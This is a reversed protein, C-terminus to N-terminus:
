DEELSADSDDSGESDDGSDSEIVQAGKSRREAKTEQEDDSSSQDESGSAAHVAEAPEAEAVSGGDSDGGSDESLVVRPRKTPREPKKQAEAESDQEESDSVVRARKTPRPRTTPEADSEDEADSSVIRRKPRNAMRPRDDESSSSESIRGNDGASGELTASSGAGAEPSSFAAVPYEDHSPLGSVDAGNDNTDSDSSSISVHDAVVGGEESEDKSHDLVVLDDDDGSPEADEDIDEDDIGESEYENTESGSHDSGGWNWDLEGGTRRWEMLRNFMEVGSEFEFQLLPYIPIGHEETPGADHHANRNDAPGNDDSDGSDSDDGPESGNDSDSEDDSNSENDPHSVPHADSPSRSDRAQLPHTRPAIRALPETDGTPDPWCYIFDLDEGLGPEQEWTQLHYSSLKGKELWPLETPDSEAADAQLYVAKLNPYLSLWNRILAEDPYYEFWTAASIAIHRVTELSVMPLETSEYQDSLCVIDKEKNFRVVCGSPGIPFTDPLTRLALARSERHVALVARAPATQQELFPSEETYTTRAFPGRVLVQYLRAKAVLDPCFMGWIQHRLEPPLEMFQPFTTPGAYWPSDKPIPSSLESHDGSSSEDGSNDSDAGSEVAEMEFFGNDAQPDLSDDTRYGELDYDGGSEDDDSM